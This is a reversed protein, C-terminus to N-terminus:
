PFLKFLCDDGISVFYGKGPEIKEASKYERGNFWYIVKICNNPDSEPTATEYISGFMHWKQNGSSSNGVTRSFGTFPEGYIIYSAEKEMQVFYGSGNKLEKANIYGSDTYEYAVSADPFLNELSNNAPILPLSILNWGAHMKFEFWYKKTWIITFYQNGEVGKVTLENNRRMDAVLIKGKGDYGERIQYFGEKSLTETYWSLTSTAETPPGDTGHPDIQFTWSYTDAGDAKIQMAELPSWAPLPILEMANLYTPPRPPAGISENEEGVGITVSIIGDQNDSKLFLDTKWNYKSWNVIYYQDINLGQVDFDDQTRLDPILWQSYDYSILRYYGKNYLDNADWSVTCTSEIEPHGLNGHSNIKLIWDYSDAGDIQIYKSYDSWNIPDKITMSCSFDIPDPAAPIKLKKDGVGLEVVSKNQGGLELGLATMKLKWLADESIAYIDMNEDLTINVPNETGTLDGGWELFICGEISLSLETGKYFYDYWNNPHSVDGNLVLNCEGSYSLRVLELFNATFSVDETVTKTITETTITKVTKGNDEKWHYFSWNLEPSAEFTIVSGEYFAGCWDSDIVITNNITVQGVGSIAFCVTYIEPCSFNAVLDYNRNATLSFKKGSYDIDGSWKDFSCPEEEVAEIAIEDNYNMNMNEIPLTHEEGDINVKRNVGESAINLTYIKNIVDFNANVNMDENINFSLEDNQSQISGTWNIFTYDTEPISKLNISQGAYFKLESSGDWEQDNIFVKGSGIKNVALIYQKVENVFLYGGNNVYNESNSEGVPTPQAFVDYLIYNTSESKEGGNSIVDREIIYNTSQSAQVVGVCLLLLMIICLKFICRLQKPQVM